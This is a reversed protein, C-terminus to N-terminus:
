RVVWIRGPLKEEAKFDKRASVALTNNDESWERVSDEADAIAHITVFKRDEKIGILQLIVSADYTAGAALEDITIRGIEPGNRSDLHFTVSFSGTRVSGSNKIRVSVLLQNEAFAESTGTIIELDPLLMWKSATNNSRDRDPIFMWPDFVVYMEMPHIVPPVPWQFVIDRFGGSILVDMIQETYMPVGGENPNGLYFVVETYGSLYDGRNEIRATVTAVSGPLPNPPDSRLTGPTIALDHGPTHRLLMLDSRGPQPVNSITYTTGEIAVNVEARTTETKVYTLLLQEGEMAMDISIEAHEDDTLQRPMSWLNFMENYFSVVIDVGKEGQVTYAIAAGEPMVIGALSPAQNALSYEPYVERPMWPTLPSYFLTDSTKWVAITMSSMPLILPLDIAKAPLPLSEAAEWVGGLSSMSLLERDETTEVDGDEDTIFLVYAHGLPANGAACVDLIGKKSEWLIQPPSWTSSEFKAFMLKDGNVTNGPADGGENRIWVVGSDDGLTLLKPSHDAQLNHTLQLPTRWVGGPHGQEAVVIELRPLIDEPGEASSLDGTVRTWAGLTFLAAQDNTDPSFEALQDDTVLSRTWVGAENKMQGIDTAAYWPKDPDHHVYQIWLVSDRFSIVPTALGTVNELLLEETAGSSGKRSDFSFRRIGKSKSPRNMAGYITLSDAIPEWRDNTEKRPFFRVPTGSKGTDGFTTEWGFERDLKFFFVKAFAGVYGRVKVGKFQIDPCLQVTPTGTGGAYVGLSAKKVECVVQVEIGLTGSLDWSRAGMWCSNGEPGWAGHIGLGALLFARLKLSKLIDGIIPLSRLKAMTPAIPPFLIDLVIVVPAGVGAKGDANISLAGSVTTPEYGHVTEELRGSGKVSGEGLVEVGTADLQQDFAGGLHINGAFTGANTDYSLSTSYKYKASSSVKDADWEWLTVEATSSQQLKSTGDTRWDVLHGFWKMVTGPVPYFFVGPTSRARLGEGNTAEIIWESVEEIADPAPIAKRTKVQGNGLDTVAPVYWKGDLYYRVTGPLGNWEVIAEFVWEGRMGEILHKGQRSQAGHIWPNRSTTTRLTFLETTTSFANITVPRSNTTYNEKGASVLVVGPNLESIRFFGQNNTLVSPGNEVSVTVGELVGIVQGDAGAERVYGELVGPLLETTNLTTLPSTGIGASATAAVRFGLDSRFYDPYDTYRYASRCETAWRSWSGGRVMREEQDFPGEPDILTGGPLLGDYSWDMQNHCWEWVNGHMDFLGFDNPLKQGVPQMKTANGCFWMYQSRIEDDQCVDEVTLSDGFHFRTTTGARCAHEWEAETPLRFNAAGQNTAAIHDNLASVFHYAEKWSVYYMPYHDGFGFDDNPYLEENPWETMLALWQRQTVEFLGIHCSQTLVVETQPGEESMHGREDIPSGILLTTAPILTVELPVDGPLLITREAPVPAGDTAIVRTKFHNWKEGPRDTGADWVVHHDTGNRVGLGVSGSLFERSPASAWTAGGDFSLRLAITSPSDSGSLDYYIDVLGSRDPRQQARVNMVSPLAFSEKPLLLVLVVAAFLRFPIM